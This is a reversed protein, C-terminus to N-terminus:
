ARGHDEGIDVYLGAIEHSMDAKVPKASEEAKFFWRRSDPQSKLGTLISKELRTAMRIPRVVAAEPELECWWSVCVCCSVTVRYAGNSTGGDEKSGVM